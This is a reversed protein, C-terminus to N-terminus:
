AKRVVIVVEFREGATHIYMEGDMMKMLTKCIYLGLGSGKIDKSNKGRYFSDSLHLIEEEEPVEGTNTIHILRCDEEDSFAIDISEGDGYKIANEIINQMVEMIRDADGSLLVNEYSTVTFGIHKVSLKERYYSTIRDIVESMYFEGKKVQLNLFDERSANSIEQVYDKIEKINKDIGAYAEQRKDETGYLGKSLARNYLEIASLPTKVDHSLSLILTKKEKQYELEREKNEELKERLMDIGWLFKGFYRSEEEKVPVSLNGKALETTLTTMDMFPKIIKRKIHFLIAVNFILMGSLVINLIIAISYDHNKDRYEIRYLTGDVNEVVYDNNCIDTDDFLSVKIITKYKGTNINEVGDSKIDEVLRKVEVRHIADADSDQGTIFYINVGLIVALYVVIATLAFRRYNNM